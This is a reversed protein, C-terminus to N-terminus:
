KGYKVTEKWNWWMYQSRQYRDGFPFDNVWPGFSERSMNNFMWVNITATCTSEDLSDITVFLDFSGIAAKHLSDTQVTTANRLFWLLSARLADTGEPNESHYRQSSPDQRWVGMTPRWGKTTARNKKWGEPDYSVDGKMEEILGKVADWRWVIKTYNDAAPMVWLKEGPDPFQVMGGAFPSSWGVVRKTFFSDLIEGVDTLGFYDICNIADNGLMEYLNAGGTEEIPDRSVWRGLRPLYGRLEYVLIGSEADLYKGSFGFPCLEM